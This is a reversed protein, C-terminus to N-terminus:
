TNCSFIGKKFNQLIETNRFKKTFNELFRYPQNNSKQKNLKLLHSIRVRSSGHRAANAVVLWSVAKTEVLGSYGGM